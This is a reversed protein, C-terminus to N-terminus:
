APVQNKGKHLISNQKNSRVYNTIQLNFQDQDNNLFSVTLPIYFVSGALQAFEERFLRLKVADKETTLVIKNSGPIDNYAEIITAVDRRSYRHHDGYNQQRVNGSHELAFALATDPRAIGTVLLIDPKEPWKPHLDRFVPRPKDANMSTFFLHQFPNLNFDKVRVRMDIARLDTPSKTILIINARKVAAASERLRGFPLLFDKTVPRAYDILLISLGPRVYRHQFADDLIVVEAGMQQLKRIGRVRNHDVAVLIGPFKTKIQCPEDGIESPVSHKEALFFGRSKRKYGRSLVAVRFDNRLLEVLYEAHPTKGTGGITINGVSIVPVAFEHSPLVQWDFLRNRFATAIGYLVSFPILLYEPLKKKM